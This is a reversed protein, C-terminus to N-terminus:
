LRMWRKILHKRLGLRRVNKRKISHVILTTLASVIKYLYQCKKASFFSWRSFNEKWGFINYKVNRCLPFNNCIVFQKLSLIPSSIKNSFINGVFSLREFSQNFTIYNHKFCFSAVPCFLHWNCITQRIGFFPILFGCIKLNIWKNQSTSQRDNRM